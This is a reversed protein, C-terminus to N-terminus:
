SARGATALAPTIAEAPLFGVHERCLSAYRQVVAPLAFLEEIRSRAAQGLRDRADVDMDAFDLLAGALARNNGPPVSRGTRGVVLAADGVDTVACPVRSAMAEGVINPFGEGWGSPLALVDLGGLWAPVDSRHGTLTWSGRPLQSLLVSLDRSPRDMGEGAILLHAAPHRDLVTAFAVVLSSPDKMPHNRAVMGILLGQEPIGFLARLRARGERRSLPGPLAFGNPIVDEGKPSYGFDRYQRAAAHSNYIIANPTRSLWACTRLVARSMMKESRYGSLSHRVNWVVPPRGPAALALLSAALQGHHMWGMVLDPQISRGLGMLRRVASLSSRVGTMGLTHVPTGTADIRPGIAGPAMLTIIESRIDPTMAASEMLRALMTEAGGVNLGTIVHLVKM